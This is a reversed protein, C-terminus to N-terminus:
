PHSYVVLYLAYNRESKKIFFFSSLFFSFIISVNFSTDSLTGNFCSSYTPIRRFYPAMHLM